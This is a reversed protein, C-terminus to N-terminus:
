YRNGGCIAYRQRSETMRSVGENEVFLLKRRQYRRWRKMIARTEVEPWPLQFVAVVM